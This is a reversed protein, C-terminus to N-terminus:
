VCDDRNRVKFISQIPSHMLHWELDGKRCSLWYKSPIVTCCVAFLNSRTASYDRENALPWSSIISTAIRKPMSVLYFESAIAHKRKVFNDLDQKFALHYAHPM